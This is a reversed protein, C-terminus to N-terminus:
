RTLASSNVPSGVSLANTRMLTLYYERGLRESKRLPPLQGLSQPHKRQVVARVAPQTSSHIL